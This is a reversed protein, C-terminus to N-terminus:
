GWGAPTAVATVREAALEAVSEDSADGLVPIVGAHDKTWTLADGDMEIVAFRHGDALLRGVIARGIGRAGGTVVYGLTM